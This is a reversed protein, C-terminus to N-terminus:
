KFAQKKVARASNAGLKRSEEKTPEAYFAINKGLDIGRMQFAISKGKIGIGTGLMSENAADWALQNLNEPQHESIEFFIGEEEIGSCIERLISKSPENTYIYISPRSVIM